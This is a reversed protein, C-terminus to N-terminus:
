DRSLGVTFRVRCSKRVQVPASAVTALRDFQSLRWALV